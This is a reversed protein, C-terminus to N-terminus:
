NHGNDDSRKQMYVILWAFIVTFTTFIPTIYNGSTVLIISTIVTILTFITMFIYSVIKLKAM